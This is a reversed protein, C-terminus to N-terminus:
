HNTQMAYSAKAPADTKSVQETADMADQWIPPIDGESWQCQSVEKRCPCDRCVKLHQLYSGTQRRQRHHYASSKDRHAILRDNEEEYSFTGM